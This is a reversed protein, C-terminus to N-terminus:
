KPPTTYRNEFMKNWWEIIGSAKGVGEPIKIKEVFTKFIREM